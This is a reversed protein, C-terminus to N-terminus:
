AKLYKELSVKSYKLDPNNDSWYQNFLVKMIYDRNESDKM